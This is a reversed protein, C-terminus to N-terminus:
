LNSCLNYHGYSTRVYVHVCLFVCVCMCMCVSESSSCALSIYMIIEGRPVEYCFVDQHTLCQGKWSGLKHPWLQQFTLWFHSMDANLHLNIITAVITCQLTYSM